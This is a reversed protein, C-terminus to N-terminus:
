KIFDFISMQQMEADLREKAKKYYEPDIEFGVFKFNSRRCAILSNGSGVHSDLIIDGEKAYRSLLWEYLKVPKSTPHFRTPDTSSCEFVKANQDFSTWAYECMALTFNEPIHKKWVIFCRTPPLSFYNGGWIIQNKSIRFLEKFYEDSPKVDWNINKKTGNQLRQNYKAFWGNCGGGDSFGAGYPPDIIALSFYNDPFDKMGEMCDCNFFYGNEKTFDIETGCIKM